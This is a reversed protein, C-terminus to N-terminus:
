LSDLLQESILTTLTFVKDKLSPFWLENMEEKEVGDIAAPSLRGEITYQEETVDITEGDKTVCWWHFREPHKRGKPIAEDECRWLSINEKGFIRQITASCIYCKSKLPNPTEDLFSQLANISPSTEYYYEKILSAAKQINELTPPIASM